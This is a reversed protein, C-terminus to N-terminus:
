GTRQHRRRFLVIGVAFYVATLALIAALEFGVGALTAGHNLIKNFARVTLSTPLIDSANVVNGALHFLPIKPLPFMCDSFFMLIFFPFCGVTLLEFITSMFASVLVAIAVVSVASVAGVVLVAVLSGGAHYGVSVASLYALVLAAEGILVQNITVATLLETTSLNSLVLRSMTGKDVEKILTAAATFLVMILGLVLLAPVYLDFESRPSAGEVAEIAVDIPSATSTAAAAYTFATYDSLAMAMNSRMNSPNQRNTIRVPTTSTRDRVGILGASFGAPIVVLLDAERNVVLNTATPLDDVEAVKFLPSGDTNRADKWASILARAGPSDPSAGGSAARDEDKVLLTYSSPAANFYGYMLYVFFPALVLTLVLIKWERLNELFTKELFALMKM